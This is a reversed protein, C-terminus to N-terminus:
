KCPKAVFFLQLIQSSMQFKFSFYAKCVLHKNKVVNCRLHTAAELPKTGKPCLYISVLINQFPKSHQVGVRLEMNPAGFVLQILIKLSTTTTHLIPITNLIQLSLWMGALLAGWWISCRLWNCLMSYTTSPQSVSNSPAISVLKCITATSPCWSVNTYIPSKCKFM